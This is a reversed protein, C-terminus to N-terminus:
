WVDKVLLYGKGWITKIKYPKSANDNLKKRLKSIRLDITRDFGDYEFGRLQKMLDDRSVTTGASKVLLWFLEFEVTSIAIDQGDLSVSHAQQDVILAGFQLKTAGQETSAVQHHLVAYKSQRDLYKRIKTALVRARIPKTLYDDAGVELGIIEDVEEDRATVMIIANTYDPRLAKCVDIGDLGPLMGDLLVLDPNNQKIFPVALDGREIVTVQYHKLELYEKFWQALSVDDEVIVIHPPSNTLEHM